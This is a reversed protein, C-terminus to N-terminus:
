GGPWQDGQTETDQVDLLILILFCPSSEVYTFLKCNHFTEDRGPRTPRIHVSSSVHNKPLYKFYKECEPGKIHPYPSTSWGGRVGGGCKLKLQIRLFFNQCGQVFPFDLLDYLLM